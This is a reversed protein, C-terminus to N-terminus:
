NQYHSLIADNAEKGKKIKEDMLKKLENITEKQNQYDETGNSLIRKKFPKKSVDIKENRESIRNQLLKNLDEKKETIPNNDIKFGSPKIVKIRTNKDEQFKIKVDPNFKNPDPKNKEEESKKKINEQFQKQLEMQKKKNRRVLLINRNM